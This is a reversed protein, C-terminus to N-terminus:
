AAHLVNRGGNKAAYLLADARGFVTGLAGCPQAATLGSSFTM